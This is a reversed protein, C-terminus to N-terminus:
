RWKGNMWLDVHNKLDADTLMGFKSKVKTSFQGDDDELMPMEGKDNTLHFDVPVNKGEKPSASPSSTKVPVDDTIDPKMLNRSIAHVRFIYIREDGVDEVKVLKIKNNFIVTPSGKYDFGEGCLWSVDSLLQDDFHSFNEPVGAYVGPNLATEEIKDKKIKVRLFNRFKDQEVNVYPKNFLKYKYKDKDTNAMRNEVTSELPEGFLKLGEKTALHSLAQMAQNVSTIKIMSPGLYLPDGIKNTLGISYGSIKEKEVGRFDKEKIPVIKGNEEQYKTFTVCIVLYLNRKGGDMTPINVMPIYRAWRLYKKPGTSFGATYKSNKPDLNANSSDGDKDMDQLVRELLQNIIKNPDRDIKLHIPIMDKCLGSLLELKEKEIGELDEKVKEANKILEQVSPSPNNGFDKKMADITTHMKIVAQKSEKFTSIADELQQKLPTPSAKVFLQKLKEMESRLSKAKEALEKIINAYKQISSGLDSTKAASIRAKRNNAEKLSLAVHGKVYSFIASKEM